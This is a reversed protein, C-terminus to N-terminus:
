RKEKIRWFTRILLFFQSSIWWYFIWQYSRKKRTSSLLKFSTAWWWWEGDSYLGFSPEHGSSIRGWPVYSCNSDFYQSTQNTRRWRYFVEWSSFHTLPGKWYEWSSYWVYTTSRNATGPEFYLVLTALTYNSSYSLSSSKLNEKNWM